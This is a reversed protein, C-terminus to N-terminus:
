KARKFTCQSLVLSSNRGFVNLMAIGALNTWAQNITDNTRYEVGAYNITVTKNRYAINFELANNTTDTKMLEKSRNNSLTITKVM